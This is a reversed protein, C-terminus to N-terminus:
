SSISRDDDSGVATSKPFFSLPPVVFAASSSKSTQMKKTASAVARRLKEFTFTHKKGVGCLLLRRPAATTRLYLLTIQGEKGTFDGLQIVPVIEQKIQKDCSEVQESRISTDEFFFHITTDCRSTSVSSTLVKLVPFSSM